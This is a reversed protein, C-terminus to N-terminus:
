FPWELVNGRLEHSGDARRYEYFYHVRGDVVVADIYRLCGKGEPGTLIAGGTTVRAFAKLDFSVALGTQEEYNVNPDNNGDYFATFVPPTYVVCAIRTIFSDWGEQPPYFIDGHWEFQAADTSIALGTCSKTVGTDFVDGTAHMKEKEAETVTHPTPAYSVLMYYRRGVVFVVPDKVGEAGVDDATFVKRRRAPDFADPSAAEIMDIRWRNDEAAVYSIYLRYVGELCKVLASREISKSNLQEKTVSWITEFHVGDASAAIRAEGGRIPRPQRVRYYLYFRGTDGDFLASPAGAWNGERAAPPEVVAFGAAPDFLPVVGFRKLSGDNGGRPIPAM